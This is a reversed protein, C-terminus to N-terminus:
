WVRERERVRHSMGLTFLGKPNIALEMGPKLSEGNGSKSNPGMVTRGEGKMIKHVCHLGVSGNCALDNWDHRVRHLGRSWLGGAEETWPIKWALFSSHTAMGEEMKGVWPVFRHRKHRRCQCTSEKASPGGPIRSTMADLLFFFIGASGQWKEARTKGRESWEGRKRAEMWSAQALTDIGGDKWGGWWPAGLLRRRVWGWGLLFPIRIVAAGM